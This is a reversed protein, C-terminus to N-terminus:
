RMDNVNVYNIILDEAQMKYYYVSAIEMDMFNGAFALHTVIHFLLGYRNVSPFHLVNVLLYASMFCKVIYM